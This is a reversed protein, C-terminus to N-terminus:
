QGLGFHALLYILLGAGARILHYRWVVRGLVIQANILSTASALGLGIALIVKTYRFGGIFAAFAIMLIAAALMFLGAVWSKRRVVMWTGVANVFAYCLTAIAALISM